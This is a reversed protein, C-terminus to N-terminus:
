RIKINSMLNIFFIIFGALLIFINALPVWTFIVLPNGDAADYYEYMDGITKGCDTCKKWFYLGVIHILFIPLLYFLIFIIIIM